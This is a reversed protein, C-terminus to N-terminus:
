DGATKLMARVIPALKAVAPDAHPSEFNRRVVASPVHLARAQALMSAPDQKDLQLQAAKGYYATALISRGVGYNMIQLAKQGYVIADDYDAMFECDDALEGWTWADRPDILPQIMRAVDRLVGENGPVALQRAHMELAAIYGKHQRVTKGPPALIIVNIEGLAREVDQRALLCRALNVRAWADKSDIALAKRASACAGELDGNLRQSESLLGLANVYSPDLALSRDILRRYLDQTGPVFEKGVIHGGKVIIQAALAYGRASPAQTLSAAVLPAAQELMRSDGYYGEILAEARDLPDATPEDAACVMGVVALAVIAVWSDRWRTFM